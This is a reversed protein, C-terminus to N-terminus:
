PFNRKRMRMGQEERGEEGKRIRGRKKGSM